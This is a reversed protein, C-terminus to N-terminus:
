TAFCVLGEDVLGAIPVLAQADDEVLTGLAVQEGARELLRERQM